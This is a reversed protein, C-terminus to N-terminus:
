QSAETTTAEPAAAGSQYGSIVGVARRGDGPSMTRAQKLDGPDQIMLGLNRRTACGFNAHRRNTWNPTTKSTFDGCESLKVKFASFSLTVIDGSG